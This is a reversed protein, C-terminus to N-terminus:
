AGTDPGPCPLPETDVKSLRLESPDGAALGAIRAYFSDGRRTFHWCQPGGPVDEYVFCIADGEEYWVGYTCSGDSYQWLSRRGTFFQEAGYFTGGRTFYQTINTAIEEFEDASLFEEAEASLSAALLALASLRIMM